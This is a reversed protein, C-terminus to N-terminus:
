RSFNYFIVVANLILLIPQILMTQNSIEKLRYSNKKQPLYLIDKNQLDIKRSALSNIDNLNVYIIEPNTLDGRIIKLKQVDANIGVGGALGVVDILHSSGEQLSLKGQRTFEGLVTVYKNSIELTILPSKLLKEEYTQNVREEAAERTLEAINVKGVAPLIVNGDARVIYGEPAATGSGSAGNQNNNILEPSKLNKLYILDGPQILYDKDAQANAVYISKATDALTDYKSNFLLSDKYPRCGAMLFVGLFLLPIYKKLLYFYGTMRM